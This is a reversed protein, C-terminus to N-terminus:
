RLGHRTHTSSKPPRTKTIRLTNASSPGAANEQRTAAREVNNASQPARLKEPQRTYKNNMIADLEGVEDNIKGPLQNILETNEVGELNEGRNLKNADSDIRLPTVFDAPLEYAIFRGRLTAKALRVGVSDTARDELRLLVGHTHTAIASESTNDAIRYPAAFSNEKQEIRCATCALNQLDIGLADLMTSKSVRNPNQGAKAEGLQVLLGDANALHTKAKGGDDFDAANEEGFTQVRTARDEHRVDRDNMLLERKGNKNLGFWLQKRPMVKPQLCLIAIRPPSALSFIFRFKQLPTVSIWVCFIAHVPTVRNGEFDDYALFSM